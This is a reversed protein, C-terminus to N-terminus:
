FAVCHISTCLGRQSSLIGSDGDGEGVPLTIADAPVGLAPMCGGDIANLTHLLPSLRTGHGSWGLKLDWETEGPGSPRPLGEVVGVVCLCEHFTPQFGSGEPSKFFNCQAWGGHM